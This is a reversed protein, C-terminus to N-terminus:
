LPFPASRWPRARSCRRSCRAASRTFCGRRLRFASWTTPLRGSSTRAFTASPRARFRLRRASPPLTAACSCWTRRNVAVDTGTGIAMGVDAQALAPADNIGDGVMAVRMGQSQLKQVEAAKGDPLVDSLVHEIGVSGAVAAATSANDGTLMYVTLGLAKLREVARKSTPKVADAAAMLAALSGDLAIYMLTKGSGSLAAADAGSRALDVGTEAMLKANGALV